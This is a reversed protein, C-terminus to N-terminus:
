IRQCDRTLYLTKSDMEMSSDRRLRTRQFSWKGEAATSGQILRIKTVSELPGKDISKGELLCTTNGISIRTRGLYRPAPVTDRRLHVTIWWSPLRIISQSKLIIGTGERSTNDRRCERNMTLTCTWAERPHHGIGSGWLMTTEISRLVAGDISTWPAEESMSALNLVPGVITERVRTETWNRRVLLGRIPWPCMPKGLSTRDSPLSMQSGRTPMRHSLTMSQIGPAISNNRSQQSGTSPSQCMKISMSKVTKYRDWDETSHTKATAPLRRTCRQRTSTLQSWDRRFTDEIGITLLMLRMRMAGGSQTFSQISHLHALESQDKARSMLITLKSAHRPDMERNDILQRKHAQEEGLPLLREQSSFSWKARGKFVKCLSM